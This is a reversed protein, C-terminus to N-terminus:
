KSINLVTERGKVCTLGMDKTIRDTDKNYQNYPAVFLWPWKGIHKYILDQAKKISSLQSQYTIQSHDKHFHSHNEIDHHRSLEKIQSWSCYGDHGILSTCIFLRARIKYAQLMRCAKIQCIMGDDITIVDYRKKRIDHYFQDYTRSFRYDSEQEVFKHYSLIIQGNTLKVLNTNKINL